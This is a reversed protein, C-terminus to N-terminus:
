SSYTRSSEGSKYIIHKPSCLVLRTALEIEDLISFGKTAMVRYPHIRKRFNWLIGVCKLKVIYM